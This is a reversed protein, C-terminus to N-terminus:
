IYKESVLDISKLYDRVQEERTEGNCDYLDYEYVINGTYKNNILFILGKMIENWYLDNEYIPQHDKLAHHTHLHVNKLDEILYKDVNIINGYDFLEHGIDYTFYIKENNLIMPRIYEKELRDLGRSDNLNELGIIIKNTDINKVLEELYEISKKLSIDKDSDYVTHITVVIPYEFYDSYKELEKMYLIQKDLSLASDAHVQFILNNKKMEYVLDNLYKMEDQNEYDFCAEIGKTHKYELIIDVLRKPNISMFKNNVSILSKM